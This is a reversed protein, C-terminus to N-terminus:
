YYRTMFSAYFYDIDHDDSDFLNLVILDMQRPAFFYTIALNVVTFDDSKQEAFSDLPRESFPRVRLTVPYSIRIRNIRDM